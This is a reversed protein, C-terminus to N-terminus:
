NQTTSTTTDKNNNDSNNNHRQQQQHSDDRPTPMVPPNRPLPPLNGKRCCVNSTEGKFLPANCYQCVYDMTAVHTGYYPSQPDSVVSPDELTLLDPYDDITYRCAIGKLNDDGRRQQQQSM